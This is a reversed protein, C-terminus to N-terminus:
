QIHATGYVNSPYGLSKYKETTKWPVDSIAESPFAEIGRMIRSISGRVLSVRREEPFRWPASPIRRVASRARTDAAPAVRRFSAFGIREVLM